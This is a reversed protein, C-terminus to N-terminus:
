LMPKIFKAGIRYYTRETKKGSLMQNWVVNVLSDEDYKDLKVVIETGPLYPFESTFCIGSESCDCVRADYCEKGGWRSFKM